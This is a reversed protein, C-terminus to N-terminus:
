YVNSTMYLTPRLCQDCLMPTDSIGLCIEVRLMGFPMETYLQVDYIMKWTKFIAPCIREASIVKSGVKNMFTLSKSLISPLYPRSDRIQYDITYVLEHSEKAVELLIM